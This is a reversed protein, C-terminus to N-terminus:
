GEDWPDAAWLFPGDGAAQLVYEVLRPPADSLPRVAGNDVFGVVQYDGAERNVFVALRPREIRYDHPGPSVALEQIRTMNERLYAASFNWWAVSSVVGQVEAPFRDRLKRAPVGTMVAFPPVDRTVVAGAGIVAGDGIAVDSLVTAGLSIVVGNGIRIRHQPRRDLGTAMAARSHILSANFAANVPLAHEHEGAYLINAPGTESWRGITGLRGEHYGPIETVAHACTLSGAGVELYSRPTMYLRLDMHGFFCWLRRERAPPPGGFDLPLWDAAM